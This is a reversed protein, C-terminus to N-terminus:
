HVDVGRRRHRYLNTHRADGDGSRWRSGFRQGANFGFWGVWLMSAGIVTLTLNHPPMPSEPYGLRKGIMLAAVLAAVGANVHVVTGGAFDLAGFYRWFLLWRWVVGHPLNARLCNYVLNGHVLAHRLIENTGRLCGRYTRPTIIAFTMQFCIFVTEPITGALSDANVGRLFVKGLGGVFSHGNTVKSM